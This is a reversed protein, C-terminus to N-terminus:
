CPENVIIIVISSTTVVSVEPIPHTEEVGVTVSEPVEVGTEGSEEAMGGVSVSAIGLKEFTHIFCLYVYPEHYARLHSLMIFVSPIEKHTM